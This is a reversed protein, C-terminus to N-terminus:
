IKYDIGHKQFLENFFTKNEIVTETTLKMDMAGIFPHEKQTNQSIVNDIYAKALTNTERTIARKEEATPNHKLREIFEAACKVINDLPNKNNQIITKLINDRDEFVIVNPTFKYKSHFYIATNKSLIDLQKINNELMTIISSLRILEGLHYGKKRYEPEVEIYYGLMTKQNNYISFIEHGLRKGTKNKIESILRNHGDNCIRTDTILDGFIKHHTHLTNVIRSDNPTVTKIIPKILQM